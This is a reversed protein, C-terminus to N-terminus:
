HIKERFHLNRVQGSVQAALCLITQQLNIFGLHYERQSKQLKQLGLFDRLYAEAYQAKAVM